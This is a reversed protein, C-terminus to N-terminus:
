AHRARRWARLRALASWVVLLAAIILSLAAALLPDTGLVGLVGILISVGLVVSLVALSRPVRVRRSVLAALGLWLLVTGLVSAALGLSNTEASLYRISFEAAEPSQNAYLKEFAFRIGQSPVSIRLPQGMQAHYGDAVKAIAERPNVWAGRLVPDMTTDLSHYRPGAPLYVEWRSETVVMDPRPLRSSLSGIGNVSQIPTAYVIEVPFGEAATIMKILVEEGEAAHAPKEPKGDVFASWVESGPPLALRLFQRRSNRVQLRATTVALGDRTVLSRYDAREIAAVQVEIEQHRTITLALRIPPRANAYRYALLIPNTTKLVLQQPLDKIELSSLGEVTTARVEVATLAEVAIRGHEVEAAPVSVTPVPTEAAEQVMIREYAIDLRFRGEMERTFELAVVQGNEGDRVEHTRLSPGAVSLINVDAPARLALDLLTGSKVDIEVSAVGKMIVDGLSVLTDIQADFRGQKREPAVAAVVLTPDPEIYKFTHAVTRAIRERIFAPLQNEGVESLAEAQEPVLTLDAGSLLAVMGRQRHVDRAILLPVLITQGESAGVGLLKEYSIDLLFEGAIPRDLFLTITKRGAEDSEGVVWDTLGGTPATIRNVQADAPIELALQQAEGRTIEYVVVGQVHMVGEEALITHYLSANASLQARLDEPIAESWTFRVWESLPLFGTALTTEERRETVVDALPSVTVEKHGPLSLEFRSVPVRPIRFAVHPPGGAVAVPVEFAVEVVHAGRGQIPTAFAGEQELVTAAEGDVKIDSLTVGGPLVPLTVLGGAFVEVEFRGRWAIAADRLEGSYSARSVAYPRAVGSRWSVVVLSTAPLSATVLTGGNEETTALDASPVVSLDVGAEPFRLTFDSAAARPLPLPLVQGSPYREADVSYILRLAATGARDTAWSLGDPGVILQVEQGDVTAERLAAGSPLLPVLTWQDEFIEASLAIEVEASKRGDQDRVLVSVDARGLAYDAPAGRPKAAIQNLLKEYEALPLRVDGSPPLPQRESAIAPLATFLALLVILIRM